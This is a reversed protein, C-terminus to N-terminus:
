KNLEKKMEELEKKRYYEYETLIRENPRMWEVPNEPPEIIMWHTINVPMDRDGCFFMDWHHNYAVQAFTVNRWKANCAYVVMDCMPKAELVNHWKFSELTKKM